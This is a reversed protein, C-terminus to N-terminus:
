CVEELFHNTYENIQEYKWEDMWLDFFNVGTIIIKLFEVCVVEYAHKLEMIMQSNAVHLYM